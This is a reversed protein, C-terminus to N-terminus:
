QKSMNYLEIAEDTREALDIAAQEPDYSPDEIVDVIMGRIIEDFDGFMPMWYTKQHRLMRIWNERPTVPLNEM